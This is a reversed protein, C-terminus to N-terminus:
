KTQKAQRREWLNIIQADSVRANVEPELSSRMDQIYAAVSLVDATTKGATRRQFAVLERDTRGPLARKMASFMKARGENTIGAGTAFDAPFTDESAEFAPVPKGKEVFPLFGFFGKSTDIHEATASSMIDRQEQMTPIKGPNNTKWEQTKREIFGRYAATKAADGQASKPMSAKILTQDIKFKAGAQNQQNVMTFLTKIEGDKLRGASLNIVDKETLPTDSDRITAAIDGYLAISSMEDGVSGGGPPVARRKEMAEIQQRLQFGFTPDTADIERLRRDNVGSGGERKYASLLIDGGRDARDQELARVQDGFAKDVAAVVERSKGDTMKMKALAVDSASAGGVHLAFLETAVARGDQFALEPKLMNDISKAKEPPMEQRIGQFYEDAEAASGENLYGEIIAAHGEGRADQLMRELLAKDKVGNKEAFGAVTADVNSRERAIAEPNRFNIGMTEASVAIQAKYVEGRHNLDQQMVHTLVGAQFNTGQERAMADFKARAEPSLNAGIGDAATKFRSQYDKIVGPTTAAGNRLHAYGGEGIALQNQARKLEVIAARAHLSATADIHNLVRESTRQANRGADQLARSVQANDGSVVGTNAQFVPDRLTDATPLVPM